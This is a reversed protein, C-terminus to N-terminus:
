WLQGFFLIYLCSGYLLLMVFVYVFGSLSGFKRCLLINCWLIIAKSVKTSDFCLKIADINLCVAELQKMGGEKKTLDAIQTLLSDLTCTSDFIPFLLSMAGFLQNLLVDYTDDSNLAATVLRYQEVFSDRSSINREVAFNYLPPGYHTICSLVEFCLHTEEESPLKLIEEITKSMDICDSLPCSEKETIFKEVISKFTTMNKDKLCKQLQFQDCVKKLTEFHDQFIILKCMSSISDKFHAFNCKWGKMRIFCDMVESNNCSIVSSAFLKMKEVTSLCTDVIESDRMKEVTLICEEGFLLNKLLLEANSISTNICRMKDVPEFSFYSKTSHGQWSFKLCKKLLVLESGYSFAVTELSSDKLPSFFKSFSDYLNIINRLSATEKLM